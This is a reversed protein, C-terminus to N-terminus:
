GPWRLLDAVNSKGTAICYVNLGDPQLARKHMTRPRSSSRRFKELKEPWFSMSPADYIRDRPARLGSKRHGGSVEGIERPGDRALGGQVTSADVQHNAQAKTATVKRQTNSSKEPM